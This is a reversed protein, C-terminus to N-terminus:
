SKLKSPLNRKRPTLVHLLESGLIRYQGGIKRACIKKNKILRLFTSRSIKLIEQAETPTYVALPEIKMIGTDTYRWTPKNGDKENTNTYLVCLIL